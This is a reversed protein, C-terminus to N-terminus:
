VSPILSLMYLTRLEEWQAHILQVAVGRDHSHCLARLLLVSPHVTATAHALGPDVHRGRIGLELHLCARVQCCTDFTSGAHM